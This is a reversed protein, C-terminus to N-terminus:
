SSDFHCYSYTASHERYRGYHYRCQRQAGNSARLEAARHAARSATRCEVTRQLTRVREMQLRRHTQGTYGTVIRSACAATRTAGAARRGGGIVGCTPVVHQPNTHERGIATAIDRSTAHGDAIVAASCRPQNREVERALIHHIGVARAEHRNISTRADCAIVHRRRGAARTRM